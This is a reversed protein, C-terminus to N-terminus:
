WGSTAFLFRSLHLYQSQATGCIAPVGNAQNDPCVGFKIRWRTGLAMLIMVLSTEPATRYLGCHFAAAGQETMDIARGGSYENYWRVIYSSSHREGCRTGWVDGCRMPRRDCGWLDPYKGVGCHHSTLGSIEHPPLGAKKCVYM